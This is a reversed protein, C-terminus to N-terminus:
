LALFSSLASWPSPRPGACTGPHGGTPAIERSQLSRSVRVQDRLNPKVLFRLQPESVTLTVRAETTNRKLNQAIVDHEFENRSHRAGADFDAACLRCFSVAVSCKGLFFSCHLSRVTVFLCASCLALAVCYSRLVLTLFQELSLSRRIRVRVVTPEIDGFLLVDRTVLTSSSM